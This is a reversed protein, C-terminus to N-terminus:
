MLHCLYIQCVNQYFFKQYEFRVSDCEFIWVDTFLMETVTSRRNSMQWLLLWRTSSNNLVINSQLITHTMSEM